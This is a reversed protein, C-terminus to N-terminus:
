RIGFYLQSRAKISKAVLRGLYRNKAIKISVYLLRLSGLGDNIRDVLFENKNLNLKSLMQSLQHLHLTNTNMVANTGRFFSPFAKKVSAKWISNIMKSINSKVKSIQDNLEAKSSKIRNIQLTLKSFYFRLFSIDKMLVLYKLLRSKSNEYLVYTKYRKFKYFYNRLLQVQSRRYIDIIRVLKSDQICYKFHKFGNYVLKNRLAGFIQNFAKVAEKIRILKILFERLYLDKNLLDRYAVFKTIINKRTQIGKLRSWVMRKIKLKLYYAMKTLIGNSKKKNKYKKASKFVTFYFKNFIGQIKQTGFMVHNLLVKLRELQLRVMFGRIRSQLFIVYYRRILFLRWNRQIRVILGVIYQFDYISISDNTMTPQLGYMLRREQVVSRGVKIIKDKEHNALNSLKIFKPIPLPKLNNNTHIKSARKLKGNARFASTLKSQNCHNLINHFYGETYNRELIKLSNFNNSKVIRIPSVSEREDIKQTYTSSFMKNTRSAKFSSNLMNESASANFQSNQSSTPHNYYKLGSVFEDKLYLSEYFQLCKKLKENQEKHKREIRHKEERLRTSNSNLLKQSISTQNRKTSSYDEKITQLMGSRFHDTTISKLSSEFQMQGGDYSPYDVKFTPSDGAKKSSNYNVNVRKKPVYVNSNSQTLSSSSFATLGKNFNSYGDESEQESRPSITKICAYYDQKQETNCPKSMGAHAFLQNFMKENSQQNRIYEQTLEGDMTRTAFQDTDHLEQNSPYYNMQASGPVYYPKLNRPKAQHEQFDYGIGPDRNLISSNTFPAMMGSKELSFNQKYSKNFSHKM